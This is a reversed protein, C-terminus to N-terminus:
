RLRSQFRRFPVYSLRFSLPRFQFLRFQFSESKNKEMM